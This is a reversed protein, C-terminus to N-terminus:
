RGGALAGGLDFGKEIRLQLTSNAPAVLVLRNGLLDRRTKRAILNRAQLYDMWETDASAFVDAHAGAEIQRALASSAAFSFKVKQGTSQTYATGIKDLVNTLSAAGFVLLEPQTAADQAPEAASLPLACWLLALLFTRRSLWTPFTM